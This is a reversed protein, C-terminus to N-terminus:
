EPPLRRRWHQSSQWQRLGRLDPSRGTAAQVARWALCFLCSLVPPGRWGSYAAMPRLTPLGTGLMVIADAASEQMEKIAIGASQSSMAYIPHFSDDDGQLAITEGIRYGQAMWYAQSKETLSPPYPSLLDITRAELIHLADCVAQATTVLPVGRTAEIREVLTRERAPGILYSPGTVALALTNVPANAFQDIEADINELYDSLRDGMDAKDSVMRANIIAFGPPCLIALEPEVTTNAQPTLVGILGKPAYETCKRTTTM